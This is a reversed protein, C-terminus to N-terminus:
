VPSWAVLSCARHGWIIPFCPCSFGSSITSLSHKGGSGNWVKVTDSKKDYGQDFNGKFQGAVPCLSGDGTLLLVIVDKTRNRPKLPAFLPLNIVRRIYWCMM